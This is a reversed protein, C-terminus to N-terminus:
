KPNEAAAPTTEMLAKAEQILVHMFIWDNWRMDPVPGDPGPVHAQALEEAKTLTARAEDRWNLQYQAMAFILSAQVARIADKQDAM